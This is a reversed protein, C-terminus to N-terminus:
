RVDGQRLEVLKAMPLVRKIEAIADQAAAGLSAAERSFMLAVHGRKGLGVTADTPGAQGLIEVIEDVGEVCRATSFVLTFEHEM